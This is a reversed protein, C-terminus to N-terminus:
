AHGVLVNFFHYVEDNDMVAVETSCSQCKVPHFKDEEKEVTGVGKQPEDNTALETQQAEQWRRKHRKFTRKVPEPYHVVKSTEVLCNLVFMARFQNHFKEHRQCNLCLTVMCAPCSLVADSGPAKAKKNKLSNHASGRLRQKDVWKQDEDDALPDYLLDDNSIIKHKKPKKDPANSEEDSDFYVQDYCDSSTHAAEPPKSTAIIKKGKSQWTNELKTVNNNLESDMAKEFEDESSSIDEGTIRQLAKKQQKPTGHLFAEVEDLNNEEDSSNGINEEDDSDASIYYSYGDVASMSPLSAM